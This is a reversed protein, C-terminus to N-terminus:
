RLIRWDIYDLSWNRNCSRYRLTSFTLLFLGQCCCKCCSLLIWLYAHFLFFELYKTKQGERGSHLQYSYRKAAAKKQLILFSKEFVTKCTSNIQWCKINMRCSAKDFAAPFFLLVGTWNSKPSMNAARSFCCCAIFARWIVLVLGREYVPIETVIHMKTVIYTQFTITRKLISKMDISLALIAKQISAASCLVSVKWQWRKYGGFRM